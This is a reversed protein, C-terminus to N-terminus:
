QDAQKKNPPTVAVRVLAPRLLKGRFNYGRQLEALITHDEVGDAPQMELAHHVHPDFKQDATPIQELGLKQLEASLRQYILEMGRAYERDTTEAALAREFDDLVPLVQRVTEMTSFDRLEAKERDARRRFNEFEAMRRLLRDQLEAKETVLQDREAVVAALQAAPDMIAVSDPTAVSEQEEGLAGAHASVEGENKSM